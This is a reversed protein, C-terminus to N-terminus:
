FDKNADAYMGLDKFILGRNYYAHPSEPYLKICQSFANHAKEYFSAAKVRNTNKLNGGLEYYVNGSNLIANLFTPHYSLASDFDALANNYDGEKFKALGINVFENAKQKDSDLVLSLDTETVLKFNPNESEQECATFSIATLLCLFHNKNM